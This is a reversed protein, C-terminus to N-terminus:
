PVVRPARRRMLAEIEDIERPPTSIRELGRETILYDDEIRVGTNEYRAVVARVKAIFARNRPTDPLVELAASSIYIGPEITFADGVEFTRKGEYFQAPDHVELGIGHSIGHITWLNAQNCAKPTRTCDTRWPPDFMASDSEILGLKALGRVRIAV